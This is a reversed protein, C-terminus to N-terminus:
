SPERNSFMAEVDDADFVRQGDNLLYCRLRVGGFELHGWHTAHLGSADPAPDPYENWAVTELMRELGNM